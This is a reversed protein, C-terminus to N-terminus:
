ALSLFLLLTVQTWASATSVSLSVSARRRASGSCARIPNSGSSASRGSPLPTARCDPTSIASIIAWIWFRSPSSGSANMTQQPRPPLRVSATGLNIVASLPDTVTGTKPRIVRGASASPSFLDAFAASSISCIAGSSSPVMRKSLSVHSFFIAWRRSLITASIFLSLPNKPKPLFAGFIVGCSTVSRNSLWFMMRRILRMRRAPSNRASPPISRASTTISELSTSLVMLPIPKTAMPYETSCRLCLGSANRELSRDGSLASSCLFLASRIM